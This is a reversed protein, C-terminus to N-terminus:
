RRRHLQRDRRSEARVPVLVPERLRVPLGPGRPMDDDEEAMRMVSIAFQVGAFVIGNSVWLMVVALIGAPDHSVLHWLGAVDFWLLGAVFVASIGFGIAVQTVYLKILAPM